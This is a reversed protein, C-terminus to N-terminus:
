AGEKKLPPLVIVGLPQGDPGSVEQREIELGALKLHHKVANLAVSEDENYRFKKLLKVSEILDGYLEKQAKKIADQYDCKEAIEKSKKAHTPLKAVCQAKACTKLIM